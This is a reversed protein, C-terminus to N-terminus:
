CWRATFLAQWNCPFVNRSYKQTRVCPLYGNGSASPRPPLFGGGLKPLSKSNRSFGDCAVRESTLAEPHHIWVGFLIALSLSSNSCCPRVHWPELIPVSGDSSFHNRPRSMRSLDIVSTPDTSPRVLSLKSVRSEWIAFPRVHVTLCLAKM